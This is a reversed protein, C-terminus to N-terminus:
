AAAAKAKKEPPLEIGMIKSEGDEMTVGYV